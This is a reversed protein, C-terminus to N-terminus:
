THYSAVIAGSLGGGLAPGREGVWERIDAEPLPRLSVRRGLWAGNGDVDTRRAM